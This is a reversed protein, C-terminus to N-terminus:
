WSNVCSVVRFVEDDSLEPFCPLTLISRALEATVPLEPWNQLGAISCQEYDPVPYHVDTGISSAALHAKLGERDSSAVVYLHGVFEEQRVPPCRVQPHDIERSYRTAIDRRRQNWGDLHPLKASLIAAQMEDLRSNRGGRFGARYKSTWGYQRLQRVLHAVAPDNTVVAGGDGMAGLNKTPYFSFSAATGFSGARRGDREAGHAQACDEFVPVGFRTTVNLLGAVDYLLGFLHTVVVASVSTGELVRELHGIDMLHTDSDVEIYVPEAGIALLATTTYLGANAVTAVRSGSRVGLARLGLEIADTGNAVGVCHAVGCYGAFGREFAEGEPGLVFWGSKLVREIAASVAPATAAAHRRLDNILIPNAVNM